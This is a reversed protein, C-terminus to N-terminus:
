HSGALTDLVQDRKAADAAIGKLAEGTGASMQPTKSLKATVYDQVQARYYYGAGLIAAGLLFGGATRIRGFLIQRKERRLELQRANEAEIAIRGM